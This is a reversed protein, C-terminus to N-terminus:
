IHSLFVVWLSYINSLQGFEPPISGTLKNKSLNRCLHLPSFSSYLIYPVCRQHPSKHCSPQFLVKWIIIKWRGLAANHFTFSFCKCHIYIRYSALSQHFPEQWDLIIQLHESLSWIIFPIYIKWYIYSFSLYCMCFSSNPWIEL